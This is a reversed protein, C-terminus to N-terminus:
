TSSFSPFFCDTVRHQQVLCWLSSSSRYQARERTRQRRNSVSVDTKLWTVSLSLPPLHYHFCLSAALAIFSKEPDPPPSSSPYCPPPSILSASTFSCFLCLAMFDSEIIVVAFWSTTNEMLVSDRYRGLTNVSTVLQLKIQVQRSLFGIAPQQIAVTNHWVDKECYGHKWMTQAAGWPTSDCTHPPGKLLKWSYQVWNASCILLFWHSGQVWAYQAADTVTSSCPYFINLMFSYYYESQVQIWDARLWWNKNHLPKLNIYFGTM